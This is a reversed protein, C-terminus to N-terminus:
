PTEDRGIVRAGLVQEMQDLAFQHALPDFSTVCRADITTPIFRNRLEEVTYMVCINTCVGCAEVELDGPFTGKAYHLLMEELQTEYFGSYRSKEVIPRGPVYVSRDIEAGWTGRVCHPAFMAFEPDNEEHQDAIYIIPENKEIQEQVKKAIQDAVKRSDKGCYLAGKESIFDNLMDIVLLVKM